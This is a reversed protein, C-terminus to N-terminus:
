QQWGARCGPQLHAEIGAVLAHDPEPELGPGIYLYAHDTADRSEGSENKVTKNRHLCNGRSVPSHERCKWGGTCWYSVKQGM